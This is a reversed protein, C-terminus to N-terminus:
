SLCFLILKTNKTHEWRLKMNWEYESRNIMWDIKRGRSLSSRWLFIWCGPPMHRTEMYSYMSSSFPVHSTVPSTQPVETTKFSPSLWLHCKSRFRVCSKVCYSTNLTTAWCTQIATWNTPASKRSHRLDDVRWHDNAFQVNFCLSTYRELSTVNFKCASLHLLVWGFAALHSILM